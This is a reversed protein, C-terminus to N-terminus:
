YMQQGEEQSLEELGVLRFAELEALELFVPEIDQFLVM